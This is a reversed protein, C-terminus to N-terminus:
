RPKNKVKKKSCYIEWEKPTVVRPRGDIEAWFPANPDNKDFIFKSPNILKTKM